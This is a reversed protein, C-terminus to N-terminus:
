NQYITPHQHTSLVPGQRRWQAPSKYRQNLYSSLSLIKGYPEAVARHPMHLLKGDILSKISDDVSETHCKVPKVKWRGEFMPNGRLKTNTCTSLNNRFATFKYSIDILGLSGPRKIMIKDCSILHLAMWSFTHSMKIDHSIILYDNERRHHDARNSKSKLDM